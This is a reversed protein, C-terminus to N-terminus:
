RNMKLIKAIRVKFKVVPSQWSGDFHHISVTNNTCTVVGSKFDKPSLYDSPLIVFDKIQFLKDEYKFGYREFVLSNRKPCPTMDYEGSGLDFPIDCYQKLLEKVVDSGKEAGFGLGTNIEHDPTSEIGFFAKNKAVLEDFSKIVEVDTDLYIGGYNYVIWLRAYDTVFAWKKAEYAEKVYKNVSVDFNQENWLKIQYGPCYKEWSAICRKVNKPMKKNGFWCYHIIKPIVSESRM